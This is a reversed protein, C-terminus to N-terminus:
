VCVLQVNCCQGICIDVHKIGCGYCRLSRDLYTKATSLVQHHAGNILIRINRLASNPNSQPPPPVNQYHFKHFGVSLM